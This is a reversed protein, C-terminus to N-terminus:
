ALPRAARRRRASWGAALLGAGVLSATGPEPVQTVIALDGARLVFRDLKNVDRADTESPDITIEALVETLFAKGNTIDMSGMSALLFPASANVTSSHTSLAVDGTIGPLSLTFDQLVAATQGQPGALRVQIDERNGNAGWNYFVLLQGPLFNISFKLTDGAELHVDPFAINEVWLLEGVPAPSSTPEITQASLDITVNRTIVTASAAQISLAALATAGALVTRRFFM